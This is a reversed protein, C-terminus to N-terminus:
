CFEYLLKKVAKGAVKWNLRKEYENFSSLALHQYISDNSMLHSIYECYDFIAKEEFIKGNLDNKIITPIGGVNTTLVPVGFSNAECFVIPTCDARTPLILFHSEAILKNILKRGSITSKNVFGYIKLFNPMAGKIDHECGVITLETKVNQKNLEETVRLAIDGGKRYWDVGLFLLKCQGMLRSKVIKKIDEFNKNSEINAGFPVVKIKSSDLHYNDIATKAAWESSYIALKCKKLALQEMQNGNKINEKSLNHHGPYFNVIGAFTVDTWFVIPQSCELYSIPMTGPSFVIDVNSEKLKENVQKAYNKLVLPERDCLHNKKLIKEYFLHKAEIYLSAPEPLPGIYKISISQDNLSKAMHYGIGSWNKIDAADYTTVYAIKM